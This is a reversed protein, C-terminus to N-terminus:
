DHRYTIAFKSFISTCLNESFLKNFMTEFETDKIQLRSEGVIEKSAVTQSFFKTMLVMSRQYESDKAKNLLPYSLLKFTLMNIASYSNITNPIKIISKISSSLQSISLMTIISKSCQIGVLIVLIGLCSAVWLGKKMNYEKTGRNRYSRYANAKEKREKEKIGVKYSESVREITQEIMTNENNLLSILKNYHNNYFQINDNSIKSIIQLIEGSKQMSVYLMPMAVGICILIVAFRISADSINTSYLRWTLDDSIDITKEFYQLNFDLFYNENYNVLNM